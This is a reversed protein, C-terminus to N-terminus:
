LVHKIGPRINNRKEYTFIKIIAITILISKYTWDFQHFWLWYNIIDLGYGIFLSWGIVKFRIPLILTLVFSILFFSIYDSMDKIYWQIDQKYDIFVFLDLKNPLDANKLANLEPLLFVLLLLILINREKKVM